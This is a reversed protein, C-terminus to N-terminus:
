LHTWPGADNLLGRVFRAASVVLRGLNAFASVKQWVTSQEVPGETKRKRRGIM